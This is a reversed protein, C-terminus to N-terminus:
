PDGSRERGVTVVAFPTAGSEVLPTPVDSSFKDPSERRTVSASRATCGALSLAVATAGLFTRRTSPM